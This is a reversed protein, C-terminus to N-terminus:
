RYLSNRYGIDYFLLGELYIAEYDYDNINYEKGEDKDTQAKPYVDVWKLEQKSYDNISLWTQLHLHNGTSFGTTGVKGIETGRKVASKAKVNVSGTQLHHFSMYMFCEKGNRDTMKSQLIVVNGAGWLGIRRGEVTQTGDVYIVDMDFPAYIPTGGAVAIDTGYHFNNDIEGNLEISRYGTPSTVKPKSEPPLLYNTAFSPPNEIRLFTGLNNYGNIELASRCKNKMENIYADTAMDKKEGWDAKNYTPYLKLWEGKKIAKEHVGPSVGNMISYYKWETDQNEIVSEGPALHKAPNYKVFVNDLMEEFTPKAGRKNDFCISMLQEYQEFTPTDWKLAATIALMEEPNISTKYSNELQVEGESLLSIRGSYETSEGMISAIVVVIVVILIVPIAAIIASIMAPISTILAIASSIAAKIAVVMNKISHGVRTAKKTWQITTGITKSGMDSKAKMKSVISSTKNSKLQKSSKVMSTKASSAGIGKTIDKSQYQKWKENRKMDKWNKMGSPMGTASMEYKQKYNNRVIRRKKVNKISRNGARLSRYAIKTTLLSGKVLTGDTTHTAGAKNAAMNVVRKGSVKALKSGAKASSSATKAVMKAQEKILM